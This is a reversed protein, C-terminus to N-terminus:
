LITRVKKIMENGLKYFKWLKPQLIIHYNYLMMKEGGWTQKHFYHGSSPDNPTTGLDFSKMSNEIAWKISHWILVDMPRRDEYEYLSGGSWANCVDKHVLLVIGGILINNCEAMFIKAENGLVFKDWIYRFFQFPLRASDLRRMTESYIKYYADLDDLNKAEYINTGRKEGQRISRRRSNDIRKYVKDPDKALGIVFTCTKTDVIVPFGIQDQSILNTFYARRISIKLCTNQKGKQIICEYLRRSFEKDTLIDKRRFLPGGGYGSFPLSELSKRLKEHVLCSPFVSITEGDKDILLPLSNLNESTSGLGNCWEFRDFFSGQPDNDVIRNWKEADRETAVKVVIYM